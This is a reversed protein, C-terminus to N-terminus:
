EVVALVPMCIIYPNLDLRATISGQHQRTMRVQISLIKSANEVMMTPEKKVSSCAIVDSCDVVAENNTPELNEASGRGLFHLAGIRLDQSQVEVPLSM